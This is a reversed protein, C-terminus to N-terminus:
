ILGKNRLDDYMDDVYSDGGNQNYVDKNEKLIRKQEENPIYTGEKIKTLETVLFRKTDNMDKQNIRKYIEKDGKKSETRLNQIDDQLKKVSTEQEKRLDNIGKNIQSSLEKQSKLENGHKTQIWVSITGIIAIIISGLFQLFVEM